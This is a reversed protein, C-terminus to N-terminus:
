GIRSMTSTLSAENVYYEGKYVIRAEGELWINKFEDELRTFYVKLIEGGKTYVNIEKATLQLSYATILASAVAGTGCALTEDEVGREYTRLKISNNNLIEIFDVNTGAPAFQRHYRIQRGM